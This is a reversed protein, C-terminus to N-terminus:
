QAILALKQTSIVYSIRMDIVQHEDLSSGMLQTYASKIGTVQIDYVPPPPPRTRTNTEM